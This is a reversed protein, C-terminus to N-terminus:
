PVGRDDERVVVFVEELLFLLGDVVVVEYWTIVVQTNVVTM